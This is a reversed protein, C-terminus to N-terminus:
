ASGSGASDSGVRRARDPGGDFRAVAASALGGGYAHVQDRKREAEDLSCTLLRTHGRSDVEVAHEYAKSESFDFIKTLMEIVYTTATITM